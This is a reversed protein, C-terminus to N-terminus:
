IWGTDVEGIAVPGAHGNEATRKLFDPMEGPDGAAAVVENAPTYRSPKGELAQHLSDYGARLDFLSM